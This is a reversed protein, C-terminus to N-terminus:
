VHSRTEEAQSKSESEWDNTWRSTGHNQSETLQPCFIDHAQWETDRERGRRQRKDQQQRPRSRELGTERTMNIRKNEVVKHRNQHQLLDSVNYNM